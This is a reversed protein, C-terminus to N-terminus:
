RSKYELINGFRCGLAKYIMEVTSLRIAKAKGKKLISNIVFYITKCYMKITIPYTITTKFM